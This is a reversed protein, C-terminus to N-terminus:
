EKTIELIPYYQFSIYVIANTLIFGYNVIKGCNEKYIEGYKGGAHGMFVM